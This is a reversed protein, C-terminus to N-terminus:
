RPGSDEQPKGPAAESTQRPAPAPPPGPTEHEAPPPAPPPMDGAPVTSPKGADAAPGPCDDEVAAAASTFAIGKDTEIMVLDFPHTDVPNLSPRTVHILIHMPTAMLQAKPIPYQLAVGRAGHSALSFGLQKWLGAPAADSSIMGPLSFTGSKSYGGSERSTMQGNVYTTKTWSVSLSWEGWLACIDAKSPAALNGDPREVWAGQFTGSDPSKAVDAFVMVTDGSRKAGVKLSIGSAPDSFVTKESDKIRCDAVPPGSSGGGGGGGGLLGGAVGALTSVAKGKAHAGSGVKGNSGVNIPARGAKKKPPCPKGSGTPKPTTGPVVPKPQDTPAPTPPTGTAPKDPPCPALPKAVEAKRREILANGEDFRRKADEGAAKAYAKIAELETIPTGAGSRQLFYGNLYEVFGNAKAVNRNSRAIAPDIVDKFWANKAEQTCFKPTPGVSTDEYAPPAPMGTPPPPAPTTGAGPITGTPTRDPCPDPKRRYLRANAVNADEVVTQAKALADRAFKDEDILGKLRPDDTIEDIEDLLGIRKRRRAVDSTYRGWALRNAEAVAKARSAKVQLADIEQQTCIRDPIAPIELPLDIPRTSVYDEPNGCDIVKAKTAAALQAEADAVDVNTIGDITESVFKAQEADDADAAAYEHRDNEENMRQRMKQLYDRAQDARNEAEKLQSEALKIISTREQETCFAVPRYRFYPVPGDNPPAGLRVPVKPRGRADIEAKTPDAGPPNAPTSSKQAAVPAAVLGAALFLLRCLRFPSARRAHGM